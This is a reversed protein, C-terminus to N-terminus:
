NLKLEELSQKSLTGRMFIDLGYKIDNFVFKQKDEAVQTMSEMLQHHMFSLIRCTKEIDLDHRFFGEDKGQQLYKELFHFTANRIDILHAHYIQPYYKELDYLIHPTKRVDQTQQVIQLVGLMMQKISKGALRQEIEVKERELKRKLLAEVLSDKTEFHVYFTKKSIGIQRCIDDISISKIGAKSILESAATLICTKTEM